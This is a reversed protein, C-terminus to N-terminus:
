AERKMEDDLRVKIGQGSRLGNTVEGEERTRRGIELYGRSLVAAGEAAGRGCGGRGRGGDAMGDRGAAAAAEGNRRELAGGRGKKGAAVGGGQGEPEDFRVRQEM